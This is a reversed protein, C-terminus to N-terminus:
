GIQKVAKGQLPVVKSVKNNKYHVELQNKEGNAIGEIPTGVVEWLGLTYVDAVGHALARATKATKSYGQFFKFVDVKEGNKTETLVPAGLEAIVATRPVGIHLVSLNKKEPQKTAQVVACSPLLIIAMCSLAIVIIKKM